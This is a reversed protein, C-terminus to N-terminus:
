CLRRSIAMGFAGPGTHSGTSFALPDQRIRYEPFATQDPSERYVNGKTLVPMFFRSARLNGKRRPFATNAGTLIAANM